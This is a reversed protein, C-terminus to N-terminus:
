KSLVGGPTGIVMLKLLFILSVTLTNVQAKYDTVKIVATVGELVEKQRDQLAILKEMFKQLFKCGSQAGGPTKYTFQSGEFRAPLM